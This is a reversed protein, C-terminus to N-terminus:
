ASGCFDPAERTMWNFGAPRHGHDRVATKQTSQFLDVLRHDRHGLVNQLRKLLDWFFTRAPVSRLLRKSGTRERFHFGALVNISFTM